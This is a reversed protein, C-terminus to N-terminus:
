RCCRLIFIIMVVVRHSWPQSVQRMVLLFGQSWQGFSRSFCCAFCNARKQITLTWAFPVTYWIIKFSIVLLKLPASEMCRMTSRAQGNTGWCSDWSEGTAQVQVTRGRLEGMLTSTGHYKLLSLRKRYGGTSYQRRIWLIFSGGNFLNWAM